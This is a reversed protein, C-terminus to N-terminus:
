RAPPAARPIKADRMAAEYAFVAMVVASQKLGAESVREYFDANTHHERTDYNQYDKIATFGPLGIATFSL